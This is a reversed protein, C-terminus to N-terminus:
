GILAPGISPLNPCGCLAMANELEARLIDLVHEVGEQGNVILGYLAPRGVFVARAGLALAKLVDTGRRIGGDMYVECRGCAAEVVEPLADIAALTGDLQRGGHNSVVIGAAGYQVALLADEATLIGKVVLPLSTVTRLWDLTKWTITDGMFEVEEEFNAQPFPATNLNYRTDRERNGLRPLDVTLVIAKYGSREARGVFSRAQELSRIYLQFWLPGSCSEAIDELRRSSSSSAVMLTGAASAGGATICEGDEHAFGHQATPAVCVPMIIPTGLVTTGMEITSVDVLVRPRLRLRTFAACNERMTVEDDSGGQYYHWAAPSVSELREQALVEYEHINLPQM